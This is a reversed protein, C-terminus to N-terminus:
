LVMFYSGTGLAVLVLATLIGAGARDATTIDSPEAIDNDGRTGANPDGVSTAGTGNGVPGSVQDILNAQIVELANMQQGVGFAGDWEGTTWKTGCTEGDSGGSCSAAAAIASASMLPMVIDHTWPAVKVTAAMWRSLYAKFTQQDINCNRSDECAVEIMIDSGKFFIRIIADLMGQVRERWKAEDAGNATINWMVAAANLYVGANYSWQFHNLERCDLKDDSGDYVHYDDSIMGISRSWDWTRDAWESFTTNKTYMALRAGLNFFCGNSIANKYNYGNNFTFIQWKLGGGCANTDWRVAQSNFVAQALALWQPQDEPPNPFNYEAASMAAIGWFAQDDNGLSKSQNPPMFNADPGVQFLLGETVLANYQEDGTYYWYDILSGFMAGSEWWYYPGPLLGPIQFSNGQYWAVMKETIKASADRISQPSDLSLQIAHAAPLVACCAASFLTNTKM